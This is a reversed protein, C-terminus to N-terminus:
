NLSIDSRAFLAQIHGRLARHRPEQLTPDEQLLAAAAEGAEVLLRADGTLSALSLAPLGHQREGFFDGPGRLTLDKEAIEFGNDTQTMVALREKAADGQADSMWICYSQHPGRGVRGRLQHLQSLGFREANEVVLLSANPVDVGVEIVTTSVLVHIEGAAFRAMVAEKEASKMRGHLFAVEYPSLRQALRQAYSIVDSLPLDGEEEGVLPCVVYVQRGQRLQKEMFAEVRARMAQGVAYTEIKRRGAPLEDLVSVDLDGYIILALTRPIPTASMVLLHPSAGKDALRARQAVGFRHQEDTVVLGLKCFAVSSELLAHTGVVLDAKGSEIQALVERRQAAPMGGTLLTVCIGLPALMASLTRWHQEALIETPAMLATQFGSGAAVYCLAAAVMTKGSGVDGQLLRNMAWPKEFDAMAQEVARRQAGTPAFPLAEYFPVLSRPAIRVPTAERARGKLLGLGLQLTLLEEFMLRRRAQALQAADTPRHVEVLAQVRDVLEYRRRLSEPLIEPQLPALTQVAELVIKQMVKQSLGATLRYIPLIAAATPSDVRDFAPNAMRRMGGHLEFTGYFLYEGGRLLQNKVWNQNFYTVEATASGDSIRFRVMEMGKRLRTLTPTTVVFARVSCSEGDAVQALARVISRDQYTRPYYRLLDEACLIGLRQLQEVRAAGVGHLTKLDTAM